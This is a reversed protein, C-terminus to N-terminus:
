DRTYFELKINAIYSSNDGAVAPKSIDTNTILSYYKNQDIKKGLFIPHHVIFHRTRGRFDYSAYVAIAISSAIRLITETPPSGLEIAKISLKQ